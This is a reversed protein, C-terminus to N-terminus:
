GLPNTLLLETNHDAPTGMLAARAHIDNFALERYLAAMGAVSTDGYDAQYPADAEVLTTFVSLTGDHNDAVEILRAHQPYDTHSATNIEWFSRTPDSHPHAIIQNAHTHGNVWAVVNPFRQLLSVFMSGPLRPELPHRSDPLLNGMTGSTHHSFLVFLQDTVHHTHRFGFIDYYRSSNAELVNTLWEFQGVGISGDAFGGLTTTDLSIGTIGPAMPFTYYVDVGDANGARFGHGVPGPGTNAPNLHAQVFGATSFPKRRVDPTVTRVLGANGALIALLDALFAPDGFGNGLKSLTGADFGEIKRNGTYMDELLPIGDPLTGVVSDDHNGFTAYWPLKLGLSTFSKIANGLFGPLHPFGAKQYEDAITSEPNWFLTSGSNQVGEFRSPDGTNPTITGGNLLTLYWDLEVTEHNDTNDGTTMLFDFPRGTFPGGSLGNVRRVLASAGLPNLTEQPRFASSGIQPHLYEFRTPSQADVIHVDTFQVFASLATRRNDRGSQGAALDSRVVLPWGPGAALRRYGSAGVPTAASELTTGTIAVARAATRRLSRDIPGAVAFALAAGSWGLFQRRDLEAM